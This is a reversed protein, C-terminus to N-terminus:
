LSCLLYLSFQDLCTMLAGTIQCKGNYTIHLDYAPSYYVLTTFYPAIDSPLVIFRFHNQARVEKSLSEPESNMIFNGPLGSMTKGFYLVAIKTSPQKQRIM